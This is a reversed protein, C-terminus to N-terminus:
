KTAIKATILSGDPITARTAVNMGADAGNTTGNRAANSAISGISITREIAMVTAAIQTSNVIAVSPVYTSASVDPDLGDDDDDDGDDNDNSCAALSLVCLLQLNRM